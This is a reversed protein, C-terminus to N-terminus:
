WWDPANRGKNWKAFYAKREKYFARYAHVGVPNKCSDPVCQVFPTLGIKPLNPLSKGLDTIVSHAKHFKGYRFTYEIGLADGHEALWLFNSLSTRAWISCPHNYHTRKYPVSNEPYCNCLLQATETVMKVVHKDCQMQAAITPDSDLVFINM